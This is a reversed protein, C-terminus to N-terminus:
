DVFHDHLEVTYPEIAEELGGNSHRSAKHLWCGLEYTLYEARLIFSLM